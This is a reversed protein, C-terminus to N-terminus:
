TRLKNLIYDDWNEPGIYTQQGGPLVAWGRKLQIVQSCRENPHTAGVVPQWSDTKKGYNSGNGLLTSLKYLAPTGDDDLYFRRCWKCLAADNVTIRYCIIEEPSDNQSLLRDASGIGISNSVETTAVRLWDRNIDGSLDRLKQNVQNLTSEKMIQKAEDMERGAAANKFKFSQNNDQIYGVVRNIVDQKLNEIANRMSENAHNAAYKQEESNPTGEFQQSHMDEVSGPGMKGHPNMLNHFYALQMLSPKDPVEIGKKRLENIQKRTLSSRGLISVMLARYRREIAEKILEVAKDSTVM